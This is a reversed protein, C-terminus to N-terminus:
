EYSRRRHKRHGPLNLQNWSGPVFWSKCGCACQVESRLVVPRHVLVVGDAPVTEMTESLGLALRSAPRPPDYDSNVIKWVTGPNVGYEAAVARYTSLALKRRLETRLALIHMIEIRARKLRFLLAHPM